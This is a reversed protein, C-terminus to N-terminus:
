ILCAPAAAALPVLGAVLLLPRRWRWRRRVAPVERFLVSERHFQRVAAALAAGVCVGLSLAVAPLTGYPFPDPRVALVRQQLLMVNVVPVWCTRGDLENGPSMSWYALPLLVLFLPVMYYNGERSSRAFVGLALAVAAILMALPAATALGAAMGALSVLRMPFFYEAAVVAGLMLVVNWVATTYGMVSVAVFKGLVIESREAPSILLTEMTGREKEGATMDIAPYVAGTLMWMVLLFPIVKVLIDRLEDLIQREVPKDSLPDYIRLPEDFDPPLGQRAFRVRKIAERWRQLVEKLRHVALKSNEEGERLLIRLEPRDGQELRAACDPEVLLVADVRRQRLLEQYESEPLPELRLPRLDAEPHPEPLVPSSSHTWRVAFRDQELLPPYHLPSRIAAAAGAAAAFAQPEQPLHEAGRIGVVFRKEQLAAWYLLGVGVFLPYMLVPLGFMLFLTRRDRWQDRLERGAILRVMGWRMTPWM